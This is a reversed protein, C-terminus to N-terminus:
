SGTDCCIAQGRLVILGEVEQRSPGSSHIVHVSEGKVGAGRKLERCGIKGTTRKNTREGVEELGQGRM